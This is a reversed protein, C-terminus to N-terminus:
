NVPITDNTDRQPRKKDERSGHRATRVSSNSFLTHLIMRTDYPGCVYIETFKDHLYDRADSGEAADTRRTRGEVWFLVIVGNSLVIRVEYERAFFIHSHGIRRISRLITIHSRQTHTNDECCVGNRDRGLVKKHEHEEWRPRNGHCCCAAQGLLLLYRHM